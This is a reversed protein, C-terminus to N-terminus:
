LERKLRDPRYIYILVFRETKKLPIVRLGKSRLLGNLKRLERTLKDESEGSVSFLSGTKIGALTPAAHEIILEESM